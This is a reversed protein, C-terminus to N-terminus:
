FLGRGRTYIWRQRWGVSLNAVQCSRMCSREGSNHNM